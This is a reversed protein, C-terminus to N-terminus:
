LWEQENVVNRPEDGRLVALVNECMLRRSEQFMEESYTAAHPTVIVNDLELLRSDRPPPEKVLVDLAAGAIEGDVLADVLADEDVVEGRSTNIFEADDRMSAFADADYLGETADTLPTHNSVFASDRLITEFSASEAGHSEIEEASLYPDQALVDLDFGKVKQAVLKGINGFGVIGLTRGSLRHIPRGATMEWGGGRVHRDYLPIERVSALLLAVTHTSVEPANVGPNNAVIVGHESAAELDIYDVGVGLTGVVALSEFHEFVERPMPMIPHIIADADDAAAILESATEADSRVIDADITALIEREIDLDEVLDPLDGVLVTFAM